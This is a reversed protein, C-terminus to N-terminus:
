RETSLAYGDKRDTEETESFGWLGRTQELEEDSPLLWAADLVLVLDESRRLVAAVPRSHSVPEPPPEVERDPVELVETVEDTKVAISREEIRVILLHDDPHPERAPLRLRSRLDLVPIVRGQLDIVGIVWPPTEPVPTIAVMRLARAVHELPLAYCQGELRFGVFDVFGEKVPGASAAPGMDVSVRSVIGEANM